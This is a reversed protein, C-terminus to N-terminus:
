QRIDLSGGNLQTLMWKLPVWFLTELMEAFSAAFIVFVGLSVVVFLVIGTLLEVVLLLQGM